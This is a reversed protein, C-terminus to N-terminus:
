GAFGHGESAPKLRVLRSDIIAAQRHQMAERYVSSKMMELFRGVSPYEAIFCIDWTENSPGVMGLEFNGRWVIRGGLRQFEPASITSYKQYAEMGTLKSGDPYNATKKLRILNLMHIPGPRQDAKFAEWTEKDFRTHM